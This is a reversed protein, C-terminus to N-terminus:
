KSKEFFLFTTLLCVIMELIWRIINIINQQFIVFLYYAVFVFLDDDKLYCKNNTFNYPTLLLYSNVMELCWRNWHKINKIKKQVIVFLYYTVFLFSDNGIMM